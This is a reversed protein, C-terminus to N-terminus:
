FINQWKDFKNVVNKKFCQETALFNRKKWPNLACSIKAPARALARASVIKAPALALTRAPPGKKHFANERAAPRYNKKCASAKFIKELKEM